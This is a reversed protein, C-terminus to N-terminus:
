WIRWSIQDGELVGFDFEDNHFLTWTQRPQLWDFLRFGFNTQEAMKAIPDARFNVCDPYVWGDGSFNGGDILFTALLADSSNLHSKIDVLQNNILDFGTHSFFRNHLRTTSKQSKQVLRWLALM